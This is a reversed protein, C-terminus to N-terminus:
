SSSNGAEDTPHSKLRWRKEDLQEVIGESSMMELLARSIHGEHGIHGKYIGLMRGIDANRLGDKPAGRLVDYIAGKLDAIARQALLYQNM